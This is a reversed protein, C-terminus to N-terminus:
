DALVQRVLRAETVDVIDLGETFSEYVPRLM